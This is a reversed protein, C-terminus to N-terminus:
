KILKIIDIIQDTPLNKDSEKTEYVKSFVVNAINNYFRWKDMWDWKTAKISLYWHLLAVKNQNEIRLKKSKSYQFVSFYLLTSLLVLIPSFIIINWDSFLNNSLKIDLTLKVTNITLIITIIFYFVNKIKLPQKSTPKEYDKIYFFAGIFIIIIIFLILFVFYAIIDHFFFDLIPILSVLFLTLFTIQLIELWNNEEKRFKDELDKFSNILKESHNDSVSELIESQNEIKKNQKNIKIFNDYDKDTLIVEEKQKLNLSNQSNFWELWRLDTWIMSANWFDSYIFKAWEFKAWDLISNNFTVNRLESNSFDSNTLDIWSLLESYNDDIICNSFNHDLNEDNNWRLFLLHNNIRKDLEEHSLQKRIM